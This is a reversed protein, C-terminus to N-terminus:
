AKGNSGLLGVHRFCCRGENFRVGCWGVVGVFAPKSAVVYRVAKSCVDGPNTSEFAFSKMRNLDDLVSPHNMQEVWFFHLAQDVRLL